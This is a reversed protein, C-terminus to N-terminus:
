DEADSRWWSVFEDFTVEGDGDNDRHDCRRLSAEDAVPRCLFVVCDAGHFRLSLCLFFCSHCM